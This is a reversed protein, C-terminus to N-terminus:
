TNSSSIKVKCIGTAGDCDTSHGNCDCQECTGLYLGGRTRKYGAACEQLFIVAM